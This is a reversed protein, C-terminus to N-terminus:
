VDVCVAHYEATEPCPEIWDFDGLVLGLVPDFTKRAPAGFEGGRLLMNHGGLLLAWRMCAYRTGDVDFTVGRLLRRLLRATLGRSLKRAGARGDEKRMQHMQLPLQLNGGTVLLCYGAERSRFARLASVYDCIAASSM